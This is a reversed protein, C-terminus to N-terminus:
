KRVEKVKYIQRLKQDTGKVIRLVGDDYNGFNISDAADEMIEGLDSSTLQPLGRGVSNTIRFEEPRIDPRILWVLGNNKEKEGLEIYRGYRTAYDQPHKVGPQVLIVVEAIGDKKLNELIAESERVTEDSLIHNPDVIGYVKQPPFPPDGTPVEKNTDYDSQGVCGLGFIVVMVLILVAACRLGGKLRCRLRNSNTM